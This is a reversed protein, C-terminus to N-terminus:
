LRNLGKLIVQIIFSFADICPPKPKCGCIEPTRTLSSYSMYAQLFLKSTGSPMAIMELLGSKSQQLSERTILAVFYVHIPSCSRQRSAQPFSPM